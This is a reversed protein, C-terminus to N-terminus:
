KILHHQTPGKLLHGSLHHQHWFLLLHTPDRPCKSGLCDCKLVRLTFTRCLPSLLHKGGNTAEYITDGHNADDGNGQAEIDEHKLFRGYDTSLRWFRLTRNNYLTEADDLPRSPQRRAAQAWQIFGWKM